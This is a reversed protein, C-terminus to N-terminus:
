KEGVGKQLANEARGVDGFEEGGVGDNGEDCDIGVFLVVLVDFGFFEELVVGEGFGVEDFEEVEFGGVVELGVNLWPEAPLGAEGKEFVAVLFELGVDEGFVFALFEGGLELLFEGVLTEDDMVVEDEARFVGEFVLDEFGFVGKGFVVLILFGDVM